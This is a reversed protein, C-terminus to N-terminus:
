GLDFLFFGCDEKAQLTLDALNEIAAADGTNLLQNNVNLKGKSVQIWVGRGNALSYKLEHGQHLISEYIKVDQHVTVSGDQGNSSAILKLRNTKESASFSKQEYGPPLGKQSPLIWVQFLHVQETPSNNFESHVVGTGATMRQVEGPLIVSENGMSDKHALSGQLVITVIEMNNHPHSGFGQGGAIYDENIVRLSRFSMHKPDYYDAFSFTHHSKLWGHNAIGRENSKRITINM